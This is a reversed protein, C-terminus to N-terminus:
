MKAIGRTVNSKPTYEAVTKGNVLAETVIPKFPIKGIVEM